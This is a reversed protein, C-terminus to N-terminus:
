RTFSSKRNRFVRDIIEACFYRAVDAEPLNIVFLKPSDSSVNLIENVLKTTDYTDDDVLEPSIDDLALQLNTFIANRGLSYRNGNSPTRPLM